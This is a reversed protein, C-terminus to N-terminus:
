YIKNRKKIIAYKPKKRHYEYDVKILNKSIYTKQNYYKNNLKYYINNCSFSYEGLDDNDIFTTTWIIKNSFIWTTRSSNNYENKLSYTHIIDNIFSNIKKQKEYLELDEKYSIIINQIDIPLIDLM